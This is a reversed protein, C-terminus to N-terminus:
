AVVVDILLNAHVRLIEFVNIILNHMKVSGVFNSSSSSMSKVFSFWVVYKFHHFFTRHPHLLEPFLSRSLVLLTLLFCMLTMKCSIFSNQPLKFLAVSSNLVGNEKM